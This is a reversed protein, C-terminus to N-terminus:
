KNNLHEEIFSKLVLYIITGSTKSKQEGRDFIFTTPTSELKNEVALDYQKDILTAIAPDKANEMLKEFENESLAAKLVKEINGDESWTAQNTYLADFVKLLTARGIRAAAEAYTATKRDYLHNKFPFDHYIICVKDQDCYEKLIKKITRLYYERCHTCEFNSFVEIRIPANLSGGLIYGAPEMQTASIGALSFLLFFLLLFIARKSHDLM